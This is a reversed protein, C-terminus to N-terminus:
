VRRELFVPHGGQFQRSPIIQSMWIRLRVKPLDMVRLFSNVHASLSHRRKASLGRPDLDGEM